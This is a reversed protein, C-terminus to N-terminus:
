RCTKSVTKEEELQRWLEEPQPTDSTYGDMDGIQSLEERREEDTM